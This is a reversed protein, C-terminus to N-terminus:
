ANAYLSYKISNKGDRKVSYMLDDVKRLLNDPTPPPANCILAGMSFTIPWHNKEMEALLNVQLKSLTIHAQEDDTEPLLLAFEDGGLRAVLDPKRLYKKASEVVTRLVQDGVSHGLTDNVAKFNDLDIYVLTFTREYREYRDIEQQMLDYFSRSNFAGTLFDTRSLTQEHEMAIKLKSLLLAIILFFSFRILTNWVLIAPHSYPHDAYFDALFWMVAALVSFVIGQRYGLLWAILSVPMVYFISFALEYGTSFDMLGVILLLALGLALKFQDTKLALSQLLKM